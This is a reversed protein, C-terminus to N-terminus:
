ASRIDDLEKCNAELARQHGGQHCAREALTVHIETMEKKIDAIIADPDGRVVRLPSGAIVGELGPASVKIGCAAAVSKVRDFRDEILIEKM